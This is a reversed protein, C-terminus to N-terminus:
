RTFFYYSRGQQNTIKLQYLLVRQSQLLFLPQYKGQLRKSTTRLRLRLIFSESIFVIVILSSLAQCLLLIPDLRWGEFLLIGGCLFGISSVLLDYYHSLNKCIGRVSGCKSM